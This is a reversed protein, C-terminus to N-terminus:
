EDRNWGKWKGKDGDQRDRMKKMIAHRLEEQFRREFVLYKAFQEKSLIGKMGTLRENISNDMEKKAQLFEESLKDINKFDEAKVADELKETCNDLQKTAEKIKNEFTNYKVLVKDAEDDKLNLVEILKIKKITEIKEMARPPMKPPQAVLLVPIILMLFAIKFTTGKKHNLTLM